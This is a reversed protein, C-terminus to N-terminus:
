MALWNPQEDIELLFAVDNRHEAILAAASQDDGAALAPSEDRRLVFAQRIRAFALLNEVDFRWVFRAGDRRHLAFEDGGDALVALHQDEGDVLHRFHRAPAAHAQLPM